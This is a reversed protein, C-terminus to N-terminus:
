SLLFPYEGLECSFITPTQFYGSVKDVFRFGPKLKNTAVIEDSDSDIILFVEKFVKPSENLFTKAEFLKLMEESERAIYTQDTLLISSIPLSPAYELKSVKDPDRFIETIQCEETFLNFSNVIGTILKKKEEFIFQPVVPIAYNLSNVKVVSIIDGPKFFM